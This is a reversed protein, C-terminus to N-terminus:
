ILLPACVGNALQHGVIAPSCGVYSASRRLRDVSKYPRSIGGSQRRAKSGRRLSSGVVLEEESNEGEEECPSREEASEARAQMSLQPPALFSFACLCVSVSVLRSFL